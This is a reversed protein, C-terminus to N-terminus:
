HEIIKNIKLLEYFNDSIYQSDKVGEFINLDFIIESIFNLMSKENFDNLKIKNHYLKRNLYYSEVYSENLYFSITKEIKNNYIRSRKNLKSTINVFYVNYDKIFFNKSDTFKIFSKNNEVDFNLTAKLNDFKFTPVGEKMKFKVKQFEFDKILKLVIHYVEKTDIYKKNIISIGVIMDKLLEKARKMISLLAIKKMLNTQSQLYPDSFKEFDKFKELTSQLINYTRAYSNSVEFDAFINLNRLHREAKYIIKENDM